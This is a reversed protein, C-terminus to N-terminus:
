IKKFLVAFPKYVFFNHGLVFENYFQVYKGFFEKVYAKDNMDSNIGKPYGTLSQFWRTPKRFPEDMTVVVFIGDKKLLRKIDEAFTIENQKKIFRTSFSITILDFSSQPFDLKSFDGLKLTINKHNKFRQKAVEIMGNSVDIGIIDASTNNPLADIMAGTGCALDLIRKPPNPLIKFIQKLEKVRKKYDIVSEYNNKQSLKTYIDKTEIDGTYEQSMWVLWKSLRLIM